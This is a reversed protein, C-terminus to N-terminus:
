ADRPPRLRGPVPVFCRSYHLECWSSGPRAPRACYCFVARSTQVVPYRCHGLELELLELCEEPRPEIPLALPPPPGLPSRKQHPVWPRASRARAPAVPADPPAEAPPAEAPPDPASPPAPPPDAPPSSAPRGSGRHPLGMRHVKGIVANRSFEPGLAGAIKSASLGQDWLARLREAKDPTWISPARGPVPPRALDEHELDEEDGIM